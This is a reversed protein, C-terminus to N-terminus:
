FCGRVRAAGALRGLMCVGAQLGVWGWNDRLTYTRAVSAIKAISHKPQGQMYARSRVYTRMIRALAGLGYWKCASKKSVAFVTMFQLLCCKQALALKKAFPGVYVM